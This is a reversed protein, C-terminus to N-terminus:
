VFYNNDLYTDVGNVRQFIKKYYVTSPYGSYVGNTIPSALINFDSINSPNPAEIKFYHRYFRNYTFGVTSM